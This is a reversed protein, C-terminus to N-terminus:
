RVRYKSRPKGQGLRVREYKDFECLGFQIDTPSLTFEHGFYLDQLNMLNLICQFAQPNKLPKAQDDGLVRAAGRLAGPGIPTWNNWDAPFSFTGDHEDEVANQWFGTYTTDLLVEKTMFGTGGFGQIQMMRKAVQEWSQTRAALEIIEPIASWLDKLFYHVVVEQKPASIGQNTIVYAGTFVRERNALRDAATDEIHDFDFDSYDQWGIADAFESTGFYRYTACNMLISRCDDWFHHGYFQKRLEMSTRDHHRRVNTFKYTQLIEDETWPFSVGAEKRLRVNERETLYDFFADARGEPM